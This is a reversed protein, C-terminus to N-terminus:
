RAHCRLLLADREPGALIPLLARTAVAQAAVSKTVAHTTRGAWPVRQAPGLGSEVYLCSLEARVLRDGVMGAVFTVVYNERGDYLVEIAFGPSHFTVGATHYEPGVFGAEGVLFEFNELVAARFAPAAAGKRMSGRGTADAGAM